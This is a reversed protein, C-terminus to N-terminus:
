SRSSASKKSKRSKKESLKKQEEAAEKEKMLRNTFTQQGISVLNNVFWYLVLGAPAWALIFIFMVPMLMMIKQQMPDASTQPSMKQIGIQTVGMLVPLVFYPDYTSLDQIWLMFPAHRLEISVMLLRYFAFFFPLMLLMPLCGSMPSAGHKKYLAMVEQNKEQQRPDTPKLKKYKEQIKKIQPSLKQMKRMSVYSHHKLPILAINILVTLFVISWGYNGVFDNIWVLATRLPVALHRMWSGYEISKEIGPGLAALRDHEKPGLFLDFNAPVDRAVLAASIFDRKKSDGNEDDLELEQKNFRSEYERSESPVMLGAFYHSSVGVLDIGISAGEGDEIDDADFFEIEQGSRVVGKDPQAYTGSRTHEGAGPGFLVAKRIEAGSRRVSVEVGIKYSDGRFRLRKSVQLGRGDAWKMEIPKQEDASLRLEAVSVEFLANELNDGAEAAELVVDLPHIGLRRSAEQPVMEYPNGEGDKYNKLTFSRINGGRNSLVATYLPTDIRIQQERTAEIKEETLPAADESVAPTETDPREPTIDPTTRGFNDELRQDDRETTAPSEPYTVPIDGPQPRYMRSYMFFVLFSLTFAILIRKEM